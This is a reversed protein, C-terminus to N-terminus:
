KRKGSTTVVTNASDNLVDWTNQLTLELLHHVVNRTDDDAKDNGQDWTNVDNRRNSPEQQCCPHHADLIDVVRVIVM